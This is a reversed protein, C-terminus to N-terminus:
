HENATETLPELKNAEELRNLGEKLELIRKDIKDLLLDKAENINQGTCYTKYVLFPKNNTISNVMVSGINLMKSKKIAKPTPYRNNSNKYTKETEYFFGLSKVRIKKENFLRISIIYVEIM